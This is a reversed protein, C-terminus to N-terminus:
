NNKVVPSALKLADLFMFNRKSSFTGLYKGAPFDSFWEPLIQSKPRLKVKTNCKDVRESFFVCPFFYNNLVYDRNCNLQLM